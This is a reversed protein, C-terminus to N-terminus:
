KINFEKVLIDRIETIDKVTVQDYGGRNMIEEKFLQNYADGDPGKHVKNLHKNSEVPTKNPLGKRGKVDPHNRIDKPLKKQIELPITHYKHYKTANGAGNYSTQNKATKYKIQNNFNHTTGRGMSAHVTGTYGIGYSSGNGGPMETAKKPSFGDDDYMNVPDNICYAFINHALLRGIDGIIADANIFRGWERNYYLSQLYYLETV